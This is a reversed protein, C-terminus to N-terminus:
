LTSQKIASIVDEEEITYLREDGESTYGNTIIRNAQYQITNEFLNRIYRANGFNRNKEKVAKETIYKICESGNRSIRYGQTNLLKIFIEELEEASYDPFDIYRNFRSQLGPNSSIFRKMNDTYGALIVALRDRDDEMRKLLTAIAEAGYDSGGGEALAYAEDIFLVGGLARDIIANTKVATQGVYEAVLGSRDTEIFKNSPLADTEYYIAAMIRAVTTKGTGPNGTFVAHLSVDTKPLGQKERLKQVTIFNRLTKVQEKVTELGTLRDLTELPNTVTNQDKADNKRDKSLKEEYIRKKEESVARCISNLNDKKIQEELEKQKKLVNAESNECLQNLRNIFEDPNEMAPLSFEGGDTKIKVDGRVTYSNKSLIRHHRDLSCGIIKDTMIMQGATGSKMYIVSDATLIYKKNFIKSIIIICATIGAFLFLWEAASAVPHNKESTRYIYDLFCTGYRVKILAASVCLALAGLAPLANTWHVGRWIIVDDYENRRIKQM